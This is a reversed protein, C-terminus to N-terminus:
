LCHRKVLFNVGYAFCFVYVKRAQTAIRWNTWKDMKRGNIHNNLVGANSRYDSSPRGCRPKCVHFKNFTQNRAKQVFHLDGSYQWGTIFVHHYQVFGPRNDQSRTGM